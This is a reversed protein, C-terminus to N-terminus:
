GGVDARPAGARRPVHGLEPGACVRNLACPLGLVRLSEPDSPLRGGPDARDGRRARARPRRRRRRLVDGLRSRGAGRPVPLRGRRARRGRPPLRPTSSGSRGTSPRSSRPRSRGELVNTKYDVVLAEGGGALARRAPRQAARRRARVRLAARRPRRSGPSGGHRSCLRSYADVLQRSRSSSPTTLDPTGRASSTPSGTPPAPRPPRGARAARHVADGIETPHLGGAGDGDGDGARRRRMGVVREAYYRYSCREFLSLASFSLRAVRHLPPEPVVTLERLAAGATAAGRRVGRLARAPGDRDRASAARRGDATSSTRPSRGATSASCSRRPVASSRTRATRRGATRAEDELGLRDLM